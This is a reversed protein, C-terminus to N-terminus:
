KSTNSFESEVGMVKSTAVATEMSLVMAIEPNLVDKGSEIWQGALHALAFMHYLPHLASLETVSFVKVVMPWWRGLAALANERPHNQEPVTLPPYNADGLFQANRKVIEMMDPLHKGGARVGSNAVLTLVTVRDPGGGSAVLQNVLESVLFTQGTKTTIQQLQPFQKAEPHGERIMALGAQQAAYGALASTASLISELHIGREDTYGAAMFKKFIEGAGIALKGAGEQHSSTVSQTPSAPQKTFVPEKRENPHMKDSAGFLKRFM